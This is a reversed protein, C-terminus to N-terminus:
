STSIKLTMASVIMVKLLRGSNFRHRDSDRIIFIYVLARKFTKSANVKNRPWSEPTGTPKNGTPAPRKFFSQSFNLITGVQFQKYNFTM